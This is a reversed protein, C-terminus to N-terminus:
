TGPRWRGQGHTITSGTASAENSGDADIIRLYEEQTAPHFSAFLIRGDPTWAPGRVVFGGVRYDTLMTMGSGDPHITYLNSAANPDILINTSNDLRNTRFVILDESPHWYPYGALLGPDVIEHPARDASRLDIIAISTGTIPGVEVSGGYRVIELVISQSDPSWAPRGLGVETTGYAETTTGTEVDLLMLSTRTFVGGDHQPAVYAISKGDPSWAPNVAEICAQNPCGSPTPTLQRANTGDADAVWLQSGRDGNGEFVLREGDPSWTPNGVTVGLRLLIDHRGTGDPRVLTGRDDGGMLIWAEGAALPYPSPGPTLSPTPAAGPSASPAPAPAPSPGRSGAFLLAGGAILVAALSAFILITRPMSPTRWPRRVTRQKTDHVDDRIRALLPPSLEAPGDQLFAHVLRDADNPATM